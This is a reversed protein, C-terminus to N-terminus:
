ELIEGRLKGQLWPDWAISNVHETRQGFGFYGLGYVVDQNPCTVFAEGLAIYDNLM